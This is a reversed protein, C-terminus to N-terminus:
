AGGTRTLKNAWARAKAAGARLEAVRAPTAEVAHWREGVLAHGLEHLISDGLALPDNCLSDDVWCGRVTWPEGVYFGFWHPGYGAM